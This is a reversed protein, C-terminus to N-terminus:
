RALKFYLKRIRRMADWRKLPSFFYYYLVFAISTLSWTLPYSVGATIIDPRLPLVFLIWLVRVLCIGVGTIILPKLTDGVGRMTGSLVEIAIYTIYTPVLTRVLRLSIQRVTADTTFLDILLHGGGCIVASVTVSLFVGIGMCVGTGRRVRDLRGAGYNQGVFTTVAIGLANIIMWFLGDVKGYTAWATVPDTGLANVGTQIIVNSINYMVSQMGAPLGIRIIRQLMRRDIRVMKWELRYLDTTKMLCGMVLVASLLQSAITAIAAGAVGMHFVAVLLLDLFINTFCSAMLFYLPRKSDGIARLIGSGMNYVLNPIIGLFYIRLYSTAYDMVAEPTGMARLAFPAGVLGIGMMALGTVLSFAVATHVSRSVMDHQGAGFFQSITVTAGSSLGVFFGVFLNILTGTTGGVAALAETGVYQGVIVADVTNYLQQFFTGFLIPFFFFLLQQWIVGETISNRASAATEKQAQTKM